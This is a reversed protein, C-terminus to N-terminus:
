RATRIKFDKRSILALFDSVHHKTQMVELSTINRTCYTSQTLYNKRDISPIVKIDVPIPHFFPMIAHMCAHMLPIFLLLLVFHRPRMQTHIYILGSELKNM